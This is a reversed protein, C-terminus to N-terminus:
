NLSFELPITFKLDVAQGRQTGPTWEPSSNILRTVEQSFSDDPSHLIVVNSVRGTKTVYFSAVVRGEINNAAAAAPYQVNSLCWDRFNSLDGGQFKPMNEVYLFPVDVEEEEEAEESVNVNESDDAMNLTLEAVTNVARVVSPLSLLVAVFLMLPIAYLSKMAAMRSSRRRLMMTIRGKLSSHNFANSISQLRFGVSKKVLLLQYQRVNVGRQIVSEDACYEHVQQLERKVLWSSPNFWLVMIMINAVILDLTHRYKVHSLEHLIIEQGSEEIDSRSVVVYGFWSFPLMATDHIIYRIRSSVGLEAEYGRFRSLLERDEVSNSLELDSPNHWLMRFLSTYLSINRILLAGVGCMYIALTGMVLYCLLSRGEAAVSEVVIEGGEIEQSIDVSSGSLISSLLDGGVFLPLIFPLVITLLWLYRNLHHLTERGLLLKNFIYLTSMFIAVEVLYIEIAGVTM